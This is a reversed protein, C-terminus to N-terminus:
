HLVPVDLDEPDISSMVITSGQIIFETSPFRVVKIKNNPLCIVGGGKPIGIGRNKSEVQQMLDKLRQWDNDEEHADVSFPLMQAMTQMDSGELEENLWYQGLQIAGASIGILVAGERYAKRIRKLMGKDQLVQWGKDVDGGALLIVNAKELAKLEKASCDSPIMQCDDIGIGKMSAVFIQYFDPVDGNSAGVYAAKPSDSSIYNLITKLFLEGDQQWFLLQSDSFLFIPKLLSM